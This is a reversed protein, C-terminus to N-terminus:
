LAEMLAGAEAALAVARAVAELPLAPQEAALEALTFAEDRDRFFEFLPVLELDIEVETEGGDPSAIRVQALRGGYGSVTDITISASRNRRLCRWQRQLGRREASAPFHKLVDATALTAIEPGLEVLLEKFRRRARADRARKAIAAPERWDQRQILRYRLDDILVDAWTPSYLGFTLSLSDTAATTSHWYGRPLFLASGSRLLVEESEPPMREPCEPAYLSLERPLGYAPVYSESPFRITENAAIQWRKEGSVQVIIVEHHDFHKQLGEGTPSFYANCGVFQPPLGLERGLARLWRAVVPLWGDIGRVCLSLGHQYLVGAQEADLMIHRYRGTATAFVARVEGRHVALLRDVSQLAPEVGLAGLRDLPGHAILPKEPWHERLFRAVTMGDFLAAIGPAVRRSAM